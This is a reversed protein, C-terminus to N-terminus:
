IHEKVCDCWTKKLLELLLLLLRAIDEPRGPCWRSDHFTSECGTRIERFLLDDGLRGSEAVDRGM